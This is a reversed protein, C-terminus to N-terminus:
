VVSKRDKSSADNSTADRLEPITESLALSGVAPSRHRLLNHPMAEGNVAVVEHALGSYQVLVVPDLEDFPLDDLHGGYAGPVERADVLEVPQQHSADAVHGDDAGLIRRPETSCVSGCGSM